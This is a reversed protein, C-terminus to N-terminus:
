SEVHSRGWYLSCGLGLVYSFYMILWMRSFRFRNFVNNVIPTDNAQFCHPLLNKSFSCPKTEQVMIVPSPVFLLELLPISDATHCKLNENYSYNLHELLCEILRYFKSPTQTALLIKHVHGTLEELNMLTLKISCFLSLTTSHRGPQNMIGYNEDKLESM